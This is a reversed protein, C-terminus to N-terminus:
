GILLHRWAQLESGATIMSIRWMMRIHSVIGGRRGVEWRKERRKGEGPQRMLLVADTVAYLSSANIRKLTEKSSGVYVIHYTRSAAANVGPDLSTCQSVTSVICAM